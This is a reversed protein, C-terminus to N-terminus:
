KLYLHPTNISMKGSASVTLMEISHHHEEEEDQYSNVRSASVMGGVMQSYWNMINM